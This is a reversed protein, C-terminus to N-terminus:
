ISNLFFVLQKVAKGRHGIDNKLGLDMEAFTQEHHNPKFIPDYGFGQEGHKTTTIKGECIGTFTELKNNLYLAIVTKFQADRNPKDKLNRLLKNMNDDANRQEGAYRASFVGPEGNLAEVELGTDDAFCDFGYHEKIYEVKQIANGEITNQTEPVDEFCGIDKLSLLQVHEPILSQVEKLKNLNNTAFVLQM